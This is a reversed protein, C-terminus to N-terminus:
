NGSAKEKRTSLYNQEHHQCAVKLRQHILRMQHRPTETGKKSKKQFAHLLYVAYAFKVTYVARFTDKARDIIVELVGAGGFGVMPVANIAKEGCQALYIAYGAEQRIDEPFSKLDELSSAIFHLPKM